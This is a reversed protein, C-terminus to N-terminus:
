RRAVAITFGVAMSVESVSSNHHNDLLHQVWWGAAMGLTVFLQWASTFAAGRSRGPLSLQEQQQQLLYTASPLLLHHYYPAPLHSNHAPLTSPAAPQHHILSFYQTRHYVVASTTIGSGAPQKYRSRDSVLWGM